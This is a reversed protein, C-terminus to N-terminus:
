RHYYKELTVTVAEKIIRLGEVLTEQEITLPPLIKLVCNDSGAREIILHNKVCNQMAVNSLSSDIKSFDIGWIMGIGRVSLRSDIPLIANILFDSIVKEREKVMQPLNSKKYYELGAVAGVFALQNGRFTGNHEAPSFIDLEPKILLISMPLGFGSISKSLVVIDPDINAREFSFFNGTRCVGVQIDDCVLLIDHKTCLDRLKQLWEIDAVNVGGEAQVSEFFIAAPKDIGSHDDTLMWELYDLSKQHDEFQNCYPAFITNNLPVGGGARSFSDSTIALSGLSMGHFAGSFAIVNSRKKNKRVLKLAAEVANTGTPGCFMIKYDLGKPSLINNIFTILFKEKEVTYMDLAHIINDMELYELIKSKIYPNNHGFNMAGAGAFFDIYRVGNSSIIVANQAREFKVPFVRCYSRVNSENKEFYDFMM